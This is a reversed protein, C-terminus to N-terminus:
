LYGKWLSSVFTSELVLKSDSTNNIRKMEGRTWFRLKKPIIQNLVTKRTKLQFPFVGREYKWVYSSEGFFYNNVKLVSNFGKNEFLYRGKKLQRNGMEEKKKRKGQFKWKLRTQGGKDKKIIKFIKEQILAPNSTIKRHSYVFKESNEWQYSFKM